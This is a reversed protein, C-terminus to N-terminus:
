AGAFCTVCPVPFCVGQLLVCGGPRVLPPSAEQGPPLQRTGFGMGMNKQRMTAEVPKTIGTGARGLGEGSKYGMRQLLKM